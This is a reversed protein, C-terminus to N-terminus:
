IKILIISIIILVASIIKRLLNDKENLFLYGVIVNLIVTLACLPAIVTVNGLQYARLQSVISASWTVATILIAIKNGNKFEEKIDSFKLREFIFILISPIGLTLAAYFPLNFNDSINVDLFMAVTFFINGLIGLAVYKNLSKEEGKKYFVFINSLAILIAGIFKNLIFPDKFFIIGAFIMFVTSLQQIMSYTSPQTGSIVSTNIRDSIAYFIIALGLLIYVKIDTPFKMEFFPSVLLITLSGIVELLVTLAGTKTISKTAIKYIQDFVVIFILYSIVFLIWNM